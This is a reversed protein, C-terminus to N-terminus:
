EIFKIVIFFKYVRLRAILVEGCKGHVVVEGIPLVGVRRIEVKGKVEICRQANLGRRRELRASGIIWESVRGVRAKILYDTIITMMIATNINETLAVVEGVIVM